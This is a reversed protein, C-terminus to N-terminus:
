LDIDNLTDEYLIKSFIHIKEKFNLDLFKIFEKLREEKDEVIVSFLKENERNKIFEYIEIPLKEKLFDVNHIRKYIMLPNTDPKYLLPINKDYKLTYGCSEYYKLDDNDKSYKNGVVSIIGTSFDFTIKEKTIFYLNLFNQLAVRDDYIMIDTIFNFVKRLAFGGAYHTDKIKIFSKHNNISEIVLEGNELNDFLITQFKSLLSVYDMDDIDYNLITRTIM